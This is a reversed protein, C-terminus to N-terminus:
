SVFLDTPSIKLKQSLLRYSDSDKVNIKWANNSLVTVKYESQITSKLISHLKNYVPIGLVNIPPPAREKPLKTENNGTLRVNETKKIVEPSSGAKRKKGPRRETM